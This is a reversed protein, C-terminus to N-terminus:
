LIKGKKSTAAPFQSARSLGCSAPPRRLLLGAATSTSNLASGYVSMRTLPIVGCYAGLPLGAQVSVTGHCSSGPAAGPFTSGCPLLTQYSRAPLGAGWSHLRRELSLMWFYIFHGPTWMMLRFRGGLTAMGSPDESSGVRGLHRSHGQCALPGRAGHGPQSSGGLRQATGVPDEPDQGYAPMCLPLSSPGWAPLGKDKRDGRLGQGEPSLTSVRPHRCGLLSSDGAGRGSGGVGKKAQPGAWSSLTEQPRQPGDGRHVGRLREAALPRGDPKPPEVHDSAEAKGQTGVADSWLQLLGEGGLLM